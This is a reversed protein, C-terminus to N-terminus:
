KNLIGSSPCLGCVWHNQIMLKAVARYMVEVIVIIVIFALEAKVRMSLVGRQSSARSFNYKRKFM